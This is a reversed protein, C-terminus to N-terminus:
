QELVRQLMEVPNYYSDFCLKCDIPFGRCSDSSDCLAKVFTRWEEEGASKILNRIARKKWAKGTRPFYKGTARF